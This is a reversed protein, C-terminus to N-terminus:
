QNIFFQKPKKLKTSEYKIMPDQSHYHIEHKLPEITVMVLNSTIKSEDDKEISLCSTKEISFYVLDM